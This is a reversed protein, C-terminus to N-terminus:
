MQMETGLRTWVNELRLSEGQSTQEPGGGVPGTGSICHTHQKVPIIIGKDSTFPSIVVLDEWFLFTGHFFCM